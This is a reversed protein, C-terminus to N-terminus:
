GPPAAVRRLAFVGLTRPPAGPAIRRARWTFADREIDTFVWETRGGDPEPTTQVIDDGRRRGEMRRSEQRAPDIWTIAWRDHEPEYVRLTTGYMGGAPLPGDGAPAVWVDQVARGQLVWGFAVRAPLRRSPGGDGPLSLEGEWAGVFQGYLMMAAARDAAPGGAHLLDGFPGAATM